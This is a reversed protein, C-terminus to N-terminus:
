KKKPSNKLGRLKIYFIRMKKFFFFLSIAFIVVLLGLLIEKWIPPLLDNELNSIFIAPLRGAILVLAIAISGDYFGKVYDKGLMKNKRRM